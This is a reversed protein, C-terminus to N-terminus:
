VADRKLAMLERRERAITADVRRQAEAIRPDARLGDFQPYDAIRGSNPLGLWGARVAKDLWGAALGREGDLAALSARRFELDGPWDQPLRATNRLEVALRRRLCDLAQGAEATRGQARLALVIPVLGARAEECYGEWGPGRQDYLQSLARWDRRSALYHFALGGDARKWLRAGARAINAELQRRDGAFYPTHLDQMPLLTKVAEESRGLAHMASAVYLRFLQHRVREQKLMRRGHDVIASPDAQWCAIQIMFTPELLPDGGRAIFQRVVAVAQRQKGAAALAHMYRNVTVFGLPDIDAAIRYQDLAEDHRGVENLVFGLWTRLEGRSADLKIARALPALAAEGEQNIGLAAYGDALDPALRIATRAHAVGLKRAEYLPITGYARYDDSLMQYLEAVLAHAPAYDPDRSIVQKALAMAENLAAQSRSRMVTRAALYTQFNGADTPIAPKRRTASLTGRLRQVVAGAIRDQVAFFDAPRGEYVEEWLQQGDATDILRVNVRLQEGASRASGELLHTVGLQKRLRQPDAGREVLRASTRGLVKIGPEAALTSLIEEAVGEAFYAKDRAPSLDTFPLVALAVQREAFLTGRLLFAGAVALLLLAAAAWWYRRGGGGAASRAPVPQGGSREAVAEVLQAMGAKGRSALDITHHQRFGLPPETSDIRAPVLRGSQKGVAAEDRVWESAVSAKSWLVVVADAGRLEEDIQRSYEAGGQLRSDWWVEHGVAELAEAVKAARRADARAYSLFVRGM